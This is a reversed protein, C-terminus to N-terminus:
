PGETINIGEDVGRSYIDSAPMFSFHPRWIGGNGVFVANNNNNNNNNNYM